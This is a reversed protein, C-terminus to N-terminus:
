KASITRLANTMCHVEGSLTHAEWFTNVWHVTLGAKAYAATVAEGFLDKGGVQPGFQTPVLINKGSLVSNVANPVASTSGWIKPLQSGPVPGDVTLDSGSNDTGAGGEEGGDILGGEGGDSTEVNPDTVSREWLQPVTLIDDKTLSLKASVSTVIEDIKTQAQANRKMAEADALFEKITRSKQEPAKDNKPPTLLQVDGHGDAVARNLLELGENPSGVVLYWGKGGERPAVSIVEDIHGVTSWSMDVEIQEQGQAKVFDRFRQSFTAKDRPDFGTVILPAGTAMPFSEINGGADHVTGVREPDFKVVAVDPGALRFWDLRPGINNDAVMLVHMSQAGGDTTPVTAAMPEFHDQSWTHLPRPTQLATYALGMSQAGAAIDATQATGPTLGLSLLTKVSDLQTQTRLAVVQLQHTADRSASGDTVKAALSMTGDWTPRRVDLAEVIVKVGAKLQAGTLTTDATLVKWDVGVQTFARAKGEPAALTVVATAADSATPDTLTLQAFDKLDDAGNVINDGGDICTAMAPLAKLGVPTPPQCRKGDDDLNPLVTAAGSWALGRPPASSTTATSADGSCGALTLAAVVASTSLIHPCLHRHTM